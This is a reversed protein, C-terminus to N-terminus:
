SSTRVVDVQLRMILTAHESLKIEAFADVTELKGQEIKMIDVDLLKEETHKALDKVIRAYPETLIRM